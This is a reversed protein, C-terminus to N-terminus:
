DWRKDWKVGIPPRNFFRLVADAARHMFGRNPAPTLDPMKTISCAIVLSGPKIYPWAKRKWPRVIDNHENHLIGRNGMLQGRDPVACLEGWPNVRNQLM